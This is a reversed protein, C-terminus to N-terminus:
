IRKEDANYEERALILHFGLLRDGAEYLLRNYKVPREHRKPQELNGGPGWQGAHRPLHAAQM